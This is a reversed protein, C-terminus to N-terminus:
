VDIGARIALCSTLILVIAARMVIVKYTSLAQRKQDVVPRLASM